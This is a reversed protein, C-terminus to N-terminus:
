TSKVTPNQASKNDVSYNPNCTGFFFEQQTIQGKEYKHCLDVYYNFFSNKELISYALGSVLLLLAAISYFIVENLFPSRQGLILNMIIKLFNTGIGSLGNGLM